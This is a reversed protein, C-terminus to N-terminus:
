LGLLRKANGALVQRKEEETLTFDMAVGGLFMAANCTPYDSGYLFREVGCADIGRRVVAHRFIGTGSLDLYYNQSRKMRQLHDTFRDHEGPHAAVVVLDPFTEVLRDLAEDGSGDTHLDVIMGYEQAVRMISFFEPSAYDKWGHMYPVLEGILRVGQERMREIERCSEAVYAPHIHFGPIYFGEYYDRLELATDNLRRMDEWATCRELVSGCIARYGLARLNDRTYAADMPCSAKNTAINQAATMFPHTHFDIIEYPFM